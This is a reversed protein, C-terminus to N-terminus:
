WITVSAYQFVYFPHVMEVLLLEFFSKVPVRLENSGYLLQYDARDWDDLLQGATIRSCLPSWVCSSFKSRSVCM